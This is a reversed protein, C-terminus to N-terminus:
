TPPIVLQVTDGATVLISESIPGRPTAIPLAQFRLERVGRLAYEPINFYATSNGTVTGLRIRGSTAPVVFVNMDPFGRNEVRLVTREPEPTAM